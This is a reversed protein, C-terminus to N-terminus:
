GRIRIRRCGAARTSSAASTSSSNRRDAPRRSLRALLHWPLRPGPFLDHRRRQRKDRGRFFHNFGVEFLTASSAFTSIHGGIGDEVRNARVVMAMANWRVISKIRREIERSGPYPVQEDANITNIYPTNATFPARVGQKQAHVGLERLLAGVRAPGGQRLVDDLSDLWERTELAELQAADPPATNRM